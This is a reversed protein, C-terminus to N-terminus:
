KHFGYPKHLLCGLFRKHPHALRKDSVQKRLSPDAFLLRTLRIYLLFLGVTKRSQPSIKIPFDIHQGLFVFRIVFVVALGYVIPHVDRWKGAFVKGIPYFIFGIAIGTAISFALPMMIVTLFAPLAESLDAWEIEKLSRSMLVGVIILAPSTIAALSAFTEVLPFIFLAALFWGATTVSTMGTRGGSAVGATSEVYATVTSTGLM